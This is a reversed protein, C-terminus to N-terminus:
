FFQMVKHSQLLNDSNIMDFLQSNISIIKIGVDRLKEVYYLKDILHSIQRPSLHESFISFINDAVFNHKEKYNYFSIPDCEHNGLLPIIKVGEGWIDRTLDLM